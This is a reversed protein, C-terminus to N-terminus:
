STTRAMVLSSIPMIDDCVCMCVCCVCVCVCVCVYVCLVCVCMCVCCVCVCVCVCVSFVYRQLHGTLKSILFTTVGPSSVEALEFARKLEDIPQTNVPTVSGNSLPRDVEDGLASVIM